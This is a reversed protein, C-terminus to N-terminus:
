FSEPPESVSKIERKEPGSTLQQGKDKLPFADSQEGM